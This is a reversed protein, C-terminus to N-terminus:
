QASWFAIAVACAIASVTISWMVFVALMCGVGIPPHEGLLPRPANTSRRRAVDLGEM